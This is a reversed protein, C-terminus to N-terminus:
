GSVGTHRLFASRLTALQVDTAGLAADDRTTPLDIYTIPDAFQSETFDFRIGDIRNYFHDGRSFPTKLLECGFLAHVLLATM